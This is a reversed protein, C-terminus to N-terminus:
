AVPGLPAVTARDQSDPVGPDGVVGALELEPPVAIEVHGDAVAAADAVRGVVSLSQVVQEPLDEADTRRRATPALVRDRAAVRKGVAVPRAPLDVGVAQAVRELEGEAGGAPREDAVHPLVPELLDVVPGLALQGPAVEAPTAVFPVREEVGAARGEMGDKGHDDLRM